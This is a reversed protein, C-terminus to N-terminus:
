LSALAAEITTAADRGVSVSVEYAFEPDDFEAPDLLYGLEDNGLGIVVPHEVGLAEKIRLGVKPTPEGPVLAWRAPGLDIRAVETLFGHKSGRRHPEILGIRELLQFLENNTALEVTARKFGIRRVEAPKAADLARLAADSFTRGMEEVFAIREGIAASPDLDATIMGGLVGNAFVATGGRVEELRRRLPGPFDASLLKARDGLTEPHCGFNVFNAITRGDPARAEMVEIARDYVGPTRLNKVMGDPIEARGFYLTAPEAREAALKVSAALRRELVRQYEPDIGSEIPFAYLIAEGWYGMTDPSQHNHTSAVAVHIGNGVLQRVREVTPLLLGVVDAIVLAVRRVGDDFYLCRAGIPDKVREMKRQFGYGALWVHSGRPPTLDISSAGVHLGGGLRRQPIPGIPYAFHTVRPPKRDPLICGSATLLGLKILDRRKL